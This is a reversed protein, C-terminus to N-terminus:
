NTIHHQEALEHWERLSKVYVTGGVNIGIQGHETKHLSPSYYDDEKERFLETDTNKVPQKM